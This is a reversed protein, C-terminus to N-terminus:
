YSAEVLIEGVGTRRVFAILRGDTTRRTHETYSTVDTQDGNELGILEGAGSVSITVPLAAHSALNGEIDVLSVEYQEISGISVPKDKWLRSEWRKLQIGAIEGPTQLAASAEGRARPVAADETIAPGDSEVSWARVSLEGSEYPVIWDMTGLENWGERIGLSKGNLFLEARPLNTYCRILINEGEQYNWVPKVLTTEQNEGTDVCTYLAAFPELNWFSKGWHYYYKPFGAMSLYGTLYARYPWGRAEGLYDAGTWVFLGSIFDHETVAKWAYLDHWNESGLIAQNPFRLHDEEYLHEKYNYCIVDLPDLVHLRSSLEPFSAALTVPRTPDLRRVIDSLRKAIPALREMNPKNPNYMREAAPKDADNNGTMEEFLPHVYPDNPYDLENGISWLVVCPHNRDRLVFAELDREHWEPFDEAYGQHKPPYVNHGTSWKNKPNEWEDFAENMVLLGLEDCLDYFEPMHPNHSTRIANCGMDKLQVLRREWTERTMAAGLCGGDHHMCIGRLKQHKGNLFFGKDPDFRFTRIGVNEEFIEYPEGSNVSLTVVLRYLNPVDTSWLKPNPVSGTLSLTNTEGSKWFGQATLTLAPSGQPATPLASIDSSNQEGCSSAEYLYATVAADADADLENILECAINVSAPFASRSEAIKEDATCDAPSASVTTFFIGEKTPHVKEEVLLTVKRYIGSGTFWRSDALDPHSVKVCVVNETEGFCALDSIDYSFPTYGYPHKGLYCSNCWVQSNKYVGDFCLTLKKGRYEEPIPFHLRYWGYGGCLYGTGSSYEQSFPYSVSWDHPLTVSKWDEGSDEFGKYWAESYSESDIQELHFKWNNNLLIKTTNM